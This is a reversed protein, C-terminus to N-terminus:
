CVARQESVVLLQSIVSKAHVSHSEYKLLRSRIAGEVLSSSRFTKIRSQYESEYPGNRSSSLEM